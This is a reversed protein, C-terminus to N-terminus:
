NCDVGCLTAVEGVCIGDWDNQCCYPDGECVADVCPNCGKTLPTNRPGESCPSHACDCSTGCSATQKVLDVCASTWATACCSPMVACVDKICAWEPCLMKAKATCEASWVPVDPLCCNDTDDDIVACVEDICPDYCDTTNLPEASNGGSCVTHPCTPPPPCSGCDAICQGCQEGTCQGDGCCVNNCAQNAAGICQDDWQDTCCYPDQACVAAVCASEPGSCGNELPDQSWQCVGHACPGTPCDPSCNANSEGPECIGNGCEATTTTGTGTTSTTTTAGGTGTTTAGGTGITVPVGGSGGGAGAGGRGGAGGGGASAAGGSQGFVEQLDVSCGAALSAALAVSSLRVIRAPFGM